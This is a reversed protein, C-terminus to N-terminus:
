LGETRQLIVREWRDSGNLFVDGCRYGSSLAGDLTHWCLRRAGDAEAEDCPDLEVAAEAPAFGWGGDPEFYWAVGNHVTPAGEIPALVAAREGMAALTLTSEGVPRCGLMLVPRDCAFLVADLDVREAYHGVYCPTLGLADVEEARVGQRVGSVAPPRCKGPEVSLQVAGRAGGVGSVLVRYEVGARTNLSLAAAGAEDALRPADDNCAQEAGCDAARVSVATDIASGASSLCLPGDSEATLAFVAAPGAAACGPQVAAADVRARAMGGVAIPTPAACSGPAEAICAPDDACPACRGPELSLTFPGRDFGYGDVVVFWAEGARADLTLASALGGPADDNCGVERHGGCGGLRAHLVSDFDAAVRACVPGDELAEFAFVREPGTAAAGCRATAVVPGGTTDGEVTEGLAIPRAAACAPEPDNACVKDVCAGQPCDADLLCGVAEPCAGPNVSLTFRGEDGGSGDVAITYEVGAEAPLTLRARRDARPGDDDVCALETGRDACVTRVALVTDIASGATDLCLPGDFDPTLRFLRERGSPDVGCAPALRSAADRTDGEVIAGVGIVPAVACPDPQCGGDICGEGPLCDADVACVPAAGCAGRTVTLRYGGASDAGYGDVIVAVPEGAVAAFTLEANQGLADDDCGLESAGDDCVARVHVASDFLSGATSACHPGDREPVFLHVQEASGARGACTATLASPAGETTGLVPADPLVPLPDDCTGVTARRQCTFDVCAGPGFADAPCDASEICEPAGCAFDVCMAGDGCEVDRRCEVTGCVGEVCVEGAYACDGDADCPEPGGCPGAVARVTFEGFDFRTAGDVLVALAEGEAVEVELAPRDGGAFPAADNCAVESAPAACAGRVHLVPDFVAQEVYLCYTGARAPAFAFASDPGEGGCSGSHDPRAFNLDGPIAPGVPLAVPEACTGVRPITAACRFDVCSEGQPCPDGDDCLRAGCTNDVCIAPDPCDDDVRCDAAACTYDLCLAGQACGDDDRCGDAVCLLGVCIGAACGADERCGGVRCTDDLCIGDPCDGDARCGDVCFRDVCIGAACDGDARCDGDVCRRDECLTVAPCDGDAACEPPACRGRICLRGAPCTADAACTPAPRCVRDLCLEGGECDGDLACAVPCPGEALGLSVVGVTGPAGDVFVAWEAGPEGDLTLGAASALPGVCAAESDPDACVARAYLSVPGPADLVALCRPAAGQVVAFVQEAGGGGCSGAQLAFAGLEASAGLPGIAACSALAPDDVCFITDCRQGPPCDGDGRCEAPTCVRDLCLAGPACDDDVRCDGPVCGLDICLAFAGCDLDARCEGATCTQDICLSAGDCDGDDLCDGDVCRARVCGQGPACDDAARCADPTCRGSLCLAGDDCDGDEACEGLVCRRDLCRQDPGCDLDGRCDAVACREDLCLRGPDCDRDARCGEPDCRNGICLAGGECDGDGICDGAICEFDLCTQGAGCEADLRCEGEGCLGDLCLGPCDDDVRCGGAVCRQDLCLAGADCDGDVACDGLVCRDDRCIGGPCDGDDRCEAVTCRRDLCLEGAACEGDLRCDGPLCGGDICLAGDPCGADDVCGDPLCRGEACVEGPDCDDDAVCSVCAGAVCRLGAGLPACDGDIRCAAEACIGDLCLRGPPCDGDAACQVPACVGDLCRGDPCDADLACEVCAGAVCRGDPCDADLACAPCAEGCPACRGDTCAQGAPCDADLACDDLVCLRDICRARAGCDDDGRCQGALCAGDICLRGPGCDPDAACGPACAGDVCRGDPCEADAVCAVCRLDVCRDADPPCDGDVRCGATCTNFLCLAGDPCDRDAACDGPVCRRAVCVQDAACDDAALCDGDVCAGRICTLDDACPREPCTAPPAADPDLALDPGLDLAADPGLDLAADPGQDATADPGRDVAGDPGQDVAADPGRDIAGDVGMDPGVDASADPGVDPGVDADTGVDDGADALGLDADYLPEPCGTLVVMM